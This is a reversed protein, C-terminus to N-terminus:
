SRAPTIGQKQESGDKIINTNRSRLYHVSLDV